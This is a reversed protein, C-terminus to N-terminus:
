LTLRTWCFNCITREGLHETTTNGFPNTEQYVDMKLESYFPHDNTQDFCLPCGHYVCGHFEYVIGTEECFGNVYYKRGLEEDVIVKECWQM